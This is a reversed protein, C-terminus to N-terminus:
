KHGRRKEWQPNLLGEKRLLLGLKEYSAALAEFAAAAERGPGFSAELRRVLEASFTRDDREAAQRLQKKLGEPLRVGMVAGLPGLPGPKRGGGPARKRERKTAKM